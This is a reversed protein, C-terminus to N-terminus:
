RIFREGQPAAFGEIMVLDEDPTVPLSNFINEKCILLNRIINTGLHPLRMPEM